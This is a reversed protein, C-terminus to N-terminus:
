TSAQSPQVGSLADALARGSDRWSLHREALSRGARRRTEAVGDDSLLEIVAAAFGEPDDRVAAEAETVPVGELGVSTGVLPLGAALAELAKVRIGTGIRVPVVAVRARALWPQMSEVDRHVEIGPRTSLGTVAPVPNRGVVLLRASPIAATVLPWVQTAFWRLGDVNPPYDLSGSFLVVPDPVLVQPRLGELDVGQPIVYTPTSPHGLRGADEETVVLLADARGVMEQELRGANRSDRRLLARQLVREELGAEQRSREGAAHFLSLVGSAGGRPVGLLPALSQHHFLVADFSPALERLHPALRRRAPGHAAVDLPVRRVWATWAAGARRAVRGKRSPQDPPVSIVRRAAARVAEDHVEGVALLDVLTHRALEVLLNAQRQNGGGGARDPPEATVWLVGRSM